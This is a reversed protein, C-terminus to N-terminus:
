DYSDETNILRNLYQETEVDDPEILLYAKFVPIAKKILGEETLYYAYELLFESDQKLGIYAENYHKLAQSYAETESYARALEWEYLPDTAKMIKIETILDIIKTHNEQEKFLEVLFLIAKKFDPDLVVADRILKESEQDDELQHALVGAYYYLEKNFEDVQLGSKATDYAQKILGEDRYAKALHYYVAHYNEDYEVVKEWTQIALKNDKTYYATLGHKFLVDPDSSDVQKFYELSAEYEGIAANAEALRFYISIDALMNTKPLIREYYVIAKKYEGISFLFEGLALDIIKEEPDLQKAALLKLEAVEFLSQAQYLDALQLLAQIYAPDEENIDDLLNIARDDDELEIYIDALSVKIEGEDPFQHLLDELIVSAEKLYGWQMYLEAITFKEEETATLLHNDLLEIAQENQQNEILQIAEM